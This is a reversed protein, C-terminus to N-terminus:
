STRISALLMWFAASEPSRELAAEICVVAEAWRGQRRRVSALAFYPFGADPSLGIAQQAHHEAADFSKLHALELALLGHVIPDHPAAALAALYEEVAQAHRGRESLFR